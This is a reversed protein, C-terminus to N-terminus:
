ARLGRWLAAIMAPLHFALLRRPWFLERKEGVTDHSFRAIEGRLARQAADSGEAPDRLRERLRRAAAIRQAVRKGRARSLYGHKVKLANLREAGDYTADVLEARTMWETEYNLIQEWSPKVLLERHEELTTAFRRYGHAEPQEFIQSGPDLFPGMPSLLCQLRRDGWAFLGGCYDVTAMVSAHDQHPLGIMFFVDIRHVNLRLAERLLAELAENSYGAEGEMAHRVREDHSEPSLEFSWASLQRDIHQLFALPPLDFFEFCIENRVREGAIADIAARAYAEGAQLLDGPIVIPGKSLRAIAAVNAALNEPSRFVPESRKTLVECTRASSGCTVCQYACGKLPLVMTTPNRLWGQFPLVGKIDRYRLAMEVLLDPRVDVGDLTMPIYRLENQHVGGAGDRWSLNPIDALEGGETLVEVLMRLPEETSDGRLVFDVEPREILERQFYSASLGGLVVPVEPHVEKCIKAVELAGHAHPMWHLDIGILKPRQAALFRPVDFRGDDLMRLALNCIRVRKGHAELYNAMTLFGIPYIEFMVSSPVMDSVPGYLIAQERFDYVSPPHLLLLDM